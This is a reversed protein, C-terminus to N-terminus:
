FGYQILSEQEDAPTQQRANLYDTLTLPQPTALKGRPPPLAPTTDQDADTLVHWLGLVPGQERTEAHVRVPVDVLPSSIGGHGAIKTPARSPAPAAQSQSEDAAGLVPIASLWAGLMVALWHQKHRPYM